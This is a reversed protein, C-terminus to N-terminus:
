DYSAKQSVNDPKTARTDEGALPLHSASALRLSLFLFGQNRM